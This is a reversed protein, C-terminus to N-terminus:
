PVSEEHDFSGIMTALNFSQEAVIWDDGNKPGPLDALRRERTLDGLRSFLSV